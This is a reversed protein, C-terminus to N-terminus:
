FALGAQGAVLHRQIQILRDSYDRVQSLTVNRNTVYATAEDNLLDGLPTLRCLVFGKSVQASRVM